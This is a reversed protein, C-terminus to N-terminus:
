TSRNSVLLRVITLKRTIHPFSQLSNGLTVSQLDKLGSPLFPVILSVKLDLSLIRTFSAKRAFFLLSILFLSFFLFNSSGRPEKPGTRIFANWNWGTAKIQATSWCCCKTNWHIALSNYSSCCPYSANYQEELTVEELRYFQFKWNDSDIELLHVGFHLLFLGRFLTM